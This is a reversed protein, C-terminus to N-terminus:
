QYQAIADFETPVVNPPSPVKTVGVAGLTVVLATGVM